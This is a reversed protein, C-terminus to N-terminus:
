QLRIEIEATVPKYFSSLAFLKTVVPVKGTYPLEVSGTKLLDGKSTVTCSVMRGNEDYAASVFYAADTLGRYWEDRPVIHIKKGTRDIWAGADGADYYRQWVAYLDMSETIAVPLTEGTRYVVPGDEQTAWGTLRYGMPGTIYDEGKIVRLNTPSTQATQIIFDNGSLTRGKTIHYVVTGGEAKAYLVVPGKLNPEVTDGAEYWLSNAGMVGNEDIGPDSHWGVLSKQYGSYVLTTPLVVSQWSTKRWYKGDNFKGSIGNLLIDGAGTTEWTARLNTDKVPIYYATLPVLDGSADIWAVQACGDFSFIYNSLDYGAPYYSRLSTFTAGGYTGGNGLLELTYQNISISINGNTGSVTTHPSKYWVPNQVGSSFQIAYTMYVNGSKIVANVLGFICSATSLVAPAPTYGRGGQLTCNVNHFYIDGGYVGCGGVNGSSYSANGGQATVTASSDLGLVELADAHLGYGGRTSGYGGIASFAGNRVYLHLAVAHVATGGYGYTGYNGQVSVTGSSYITLDGSATIAGGQYNILELTGNGDYSWGTGSMAQDMTFNTGDVSMNLKFTSDASLLAASYEGENEAAKEAESRAALYESGDGAWEAGAVCLSDDEGIEAAYVPFVAAFLLLLALNLGALKYGIHKM